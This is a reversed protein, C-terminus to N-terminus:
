ALDSTVTVVGEGIETQLVIADLSSLTRVKVIFVFIGRATLEPTQGSTEDVLFSDIRANEPANISQLESLFQEIVARISDRRAPTALRKSFPVLAKALSDQIYDAMKRRAQTTKGAALDTTVGSQYISGSTPDRRPACIGASKFAIYDSISLTVLSGSEVVPEVAFFDEILGTQQGPNEEPPLLCDLTALPGDGRVSIVGDETFGLGGATGRLAIEPVRVRWGPYTYFVRDRRYSAVDAIAQSRTFGLPAGTIFKRGYMGGASADVANSRGKRIVADSRRASLSFNVERVVSALDITRDFAREYAVDMQPETLASSLANPNTVSFDAFSPMDVVVSVSGAAVGAATGDDLAPRVKVLHPGVNPAASTGAAITLTQMTVWEAGGSTRVRTGAAIRGGGHEGATVTVGLPSMGCAVAMPTSTVSITGPGGSRFLRLMGQSDVRAAANIATLAATTNVITAVEASTVRTLNAVNGTGATTGAAHGISVLAGPTGDARVVSGSTGQVIGNLRVAGASVTACAYGMVLNIRAAVQAPTQDAAAFTVRVAPGGDVTLDVSEGGVYGSNVFVSGLVTAAVAAIATSSSPGGVNTTITLVGGVSLAFPGAGGLIAALPSFSVQGVSTDARAVILRRPRCFKLKLFGNGNWLEFLHRRASPNNHPVTGYVYGFGGFRNVLDESGFVEQPGVSGSGVFEPADSGDAFSGDEFEGVCLLTGTGIGTLPAQPPLDVIDIAEIEALTEITPQTEFRRIFGAM